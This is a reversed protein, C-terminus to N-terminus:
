RYFAGSTIIKYKSILPVTHKYRRELEPKMESDIQITQTQSPNEIHENVSSPESKVNECIPSFLTGTVLLHMIAIVLM